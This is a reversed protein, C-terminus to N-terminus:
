SSPEAGARGACRGIRAGAGSPDGANGGHRLGPRASGGDHMRPNGARRARRFRRQGVQARALVEDFTGHYDGTFYVIKTRGTVTRAARLAAMVAESGTNCFTARDLGTMECIKRAVEGALPSQPGIEIGTALQRAVAETIFAPSHGFLNVGFGMTVDLYENGDIDWIQSGASREAVIPYVM